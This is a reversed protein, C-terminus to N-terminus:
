LHFGTKISELWTHKFQIFQINDHNFYYNLARFQFNTHILHSVKSGIKAFMSPIFPHIKLYIIPVWLIFPM